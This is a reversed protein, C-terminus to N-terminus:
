TCILRIIWAFSVQTTISPVNTRNTKLVSAIEEETMNKLKISLLRLVGNPAHNDASYKSVNRLMQKKKSKTEMKVSITKINDIQLFLHQSMVLFLRLLNM